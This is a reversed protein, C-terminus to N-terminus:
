LLRSLALMKEKKKGEKKLMRKYDSMLWEELWKKPNDFRKYIKTLSQKKKLKKKLDLMTNKKGRRKLRKMIKRRM